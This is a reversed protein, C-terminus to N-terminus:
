SKIIAKDIHANKFSSLTCRGVDFKSKYGHMGQDMSLYTQMNEYSTNLVNKGTKYFMSKRTFM